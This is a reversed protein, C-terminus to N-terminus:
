HQRRRITGFRGDDLRCPSPWEVVRCGDGDMLQASTHASTEACVNLWEMSVRPEGDHVRRAILVDYRGVTPRGEWLARTEGAASLEVPRIPFDEPRYHKGPAVRVPVAAPEPFRIAVDRGLPIRILTAAAGAGAVLLGDRLISIGLSPLAAVHIFDGPRLVTMLGRDIVFSIGAATARRKETAKLQLLAYLKWPAPTHEAWTLEPACGLLCDGFGETVRGQFPGHANDDDRVEFVYSFSLHASDM